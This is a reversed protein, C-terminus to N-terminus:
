SNFFKLKVALVTSLALALVLFAISATRESLFPLFVLFVGVSGFISYVISKKKLRIKHKKQVFLIEKQLSQILNQEQLVNSVLEKKVEADNLGQDKLKLVLSYIVDATIHSEM